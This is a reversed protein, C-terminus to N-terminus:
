VSHDRRDDLAIRTDPCRTSDVTVRRAPGQEGVRRVAIHYVVPMCPAIRLHDVELNLGLLTEV